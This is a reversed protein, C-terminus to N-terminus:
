QPTGCRGHIAWFSGWCKGLVPGWRRGNTGKQVRLAQESVSINAPGSSPSLVVFWLTATVEPNPLPEGVEITADELTAQAPLFQGAGDFSDYDRGITVDIFVQGQQMGYGDVQLSYVEGKEGHFWACSYVNGMGAGDFALPCDDNSAVM